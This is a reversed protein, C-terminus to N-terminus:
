FRMQWDTSINGLNYNGVRAGNQMNWILAQGTVSNRYLIDNDGDGDYDAAAQLKFDVSNNGLKSSSQVTNKQMLWVVTDGDTADGPTTDRFLLDVAGDQNFDTVTALQMSPNPVPLNNVSVRAGNQMEWVVTQGTSDDRFILDDDGDNDTDGSKKLKYVTSITGVDIVSAVQASSNLQWIRVLGSTNQMVIDDIGDGNFDGTDVVQFTSSPTGINTASVLAMNQITWVKIAGTSMKLLIDTSGDGNFDGLGILKATTNGLFSNAQRVGNQMKWFILKGQVSDYWLIDADGDKDGDLIAAVEFTLANTPLMSASAIAGNKMLWIKNQGTVVNRLLIDSTGDNNFDDAIAAPLPPAAPINGNFNVGANQAVIFDGLDAPDPQVPTDSTLPLAENTSPDRAGTYKYFEFRYVVGAAGPDLAVGTLDIQGSGPSNLDVQILQWEIQVQTEAQQIIPNEAVLDEVAIDKVTGTATVKVWRPEGFEFVNPEPAVIVVHVVPPQPVGLIPPQPTVTWVPNPVTSEVPILSTSGPTSEVLWRYKVNPTSVSTSVGFHDCPYNPGYSPAGYPWCSDNPTVPLTGSPTGAVWVGANLASQYSIVVKTGTRPATASSMETVTPAGYREMNPWRDASGFISTIETQKIDDIEIEFGHAVSNTDNVVDFNALAGFVAAFSPNMVCVLAVGLVSNLIIKRM